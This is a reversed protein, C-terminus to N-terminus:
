ETLASFLHVSYEYEKFHTKGNYVVKVYSFDIVFAVIEKRRRRIIVKLKRDCNPVLIKRAGSNVNSVFNSLLKVKKDNRVQKM